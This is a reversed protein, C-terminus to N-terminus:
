YQLLLQLEYPSLLASSEKIWLYVFHNIHKWPSSFILALVKSPNHLLFETCSYGCSCLAILNIRCWTIVNTYMLQKSGLVCVCVCMWTKQTHNRVTMFFLGRYHLPEWTQSEYILPGLNLEQAFHLRPITLRIRTEHGNLPSHTSPTLRPKHGADQTHTPTIPPGLWVWLDMFTYGWAWFSSPVPHHDGTWCTILGHHILNKLSNTTGWM